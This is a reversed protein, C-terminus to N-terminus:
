DTDPLELVSQLIASRWACHEDIEGPSREVTEPKEGILKPAVCVHM